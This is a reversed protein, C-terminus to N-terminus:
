HYFCAERKLKGFKLSVTIEHSIQLHNEVIWNQICRLELNGKRELQASWPERFILSVDDEHAVLICCDVNFDITKMKPVYAIYPDNWKLLDFNKAM